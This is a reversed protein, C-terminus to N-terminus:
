IVLMRVETFPGEAPERESQEISTHKALHEFSVAVETMPVFRVDFAKGIFAAKTRQHPQMKRRKHDSIRPPSCCFAAVPNLGTVAKPKSRVSL